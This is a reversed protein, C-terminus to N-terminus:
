SSCAHVGVLAPPGAVRGSLSRPYHKFPREPNLRTVSKGLHAEIRELYDYTEQLEEGTDCFVYEMDSVRDRMYLALATSDKGGSLSLVHRTDKEEATSQTESM